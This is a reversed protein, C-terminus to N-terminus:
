RIMGAVAGDGRFFNILDKPYREPTDVEGSTSVIM